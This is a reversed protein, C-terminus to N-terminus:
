FIGESVVIIDGQNIVPDSDAVGDMVDKINVKIVDYGTSGKKPRLIKVRSSSGFQSFGGAMSIGRLVTMNEEIDYAGSKVVEGYVFFRRSHSEKLAVAVVPYKMYGDGLRRQIEDQIQALTQGRVSVTGIYPFTISGDPSVTATDALQEPQLVNIDLIDNPGVQYDQPAAAAQTVVIPPLVQASAPSVTQANDAYAVRLCMATLIFFSVVPQKFNPM